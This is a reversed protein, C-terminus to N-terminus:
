YVGGSPPFVLLHAWNLEKWMNAVKTCGWVVHLIDEPHANCINCCVFSVIQRYFLNDLTPLSNNCARWIFHKVKNPTHLMWFVSWLHRKPHLNSSSPSSASAENALLRYASWTSFIGSHTKSWILSDHPLRSSIPISLIKKVEHLLFLKRVEEDKWSGNVKDILLSVKADHPISPLPCLWRSISKIQSGNTKRLVCQSAMVLGGCWVRGYWM